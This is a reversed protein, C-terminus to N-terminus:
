GAPDPPPVVVPAGRAIAGALDTATTGEGHMVLLRQPKGPTTVVMLVWREGLGILDTPYLMAVGVPRDGDTITVADYLQAELAARVRELDAWGGPAAALTAGAVRAVAADPVAGIGPLDAATAARAPVEGAPGPVTPRPAPAPATPPPPAPSSGDPGLIALALGGAGVAATLAVLGTALARRGPRRRRRPRALPVTRADGPGLARALAGARAAGSGPRDEPRKALGRALIADVERPLGPRLDSARPVPRHLHAYLLAEPRDGTFPPRGTLVVFAVAALAYRDAGPGARGGAIVEPALFGATGILLGDETMLTADDRRAIGFDALWPGEPDLLVNSPTVDRHVLGAAHAADLGAAVAAILRLGEAVPPPGAALRQALTGERALAMALYGRGESEGHDIIPVVAPHRVAGLAECERRFRVRFGPDSWLSAHVVKVAAVTGRVAHRARHVTAQGGGGLREGLEWPGALRAPAVVTM